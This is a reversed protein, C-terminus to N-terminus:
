VGISWWWSCDDNGLKPTFAMGNCTRKSDAGNEVFDSTLIWTAGARNYALGQLSGVVLAREGRSRHAAAMAGGGVRNRRRDIKLYCVM